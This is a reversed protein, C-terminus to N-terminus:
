HSTGTGGLTLVTPPGCQFSHPPLTKKPQEITLIFVAKLPVSVWVSMLHSKDHLLERSLSLSDQAVERPAPIIWFIRSFLFFVSVFLLSNTYKCTHEYKNLSSASHFPIRHSSDLFHHFVSCRPSLHLSICAPQRQHPVWMPYLPALLTHTHTGPYETHTPTQRHQLQLTGGASYVVSTGGGGQHSTHASSIKDLGLALSWFLRM